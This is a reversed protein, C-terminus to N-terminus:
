CFEMNKAWNVSQLLDPTPPKGTYQAKHLETTQNGQSAAHKYVGNM